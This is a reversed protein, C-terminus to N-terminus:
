LDLIEFRTLIPEIKYEEALCEIMGDTWHWGIEKMNYYNKNVERITLIRNTNLKKLNVEAKVGLAHPYSGNIIEKMSLGFEEKIKEWTKIKVKDGAKYKM